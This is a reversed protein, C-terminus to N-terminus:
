QATQIDMWCAELMFSDLMRTVYVHSQFLLHALPNKKKKVKKKKKNGRREQARITMFRAIGSRGQNSYHVAHNKQFGM